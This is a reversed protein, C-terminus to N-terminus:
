RVLERGWALVTWGAPVTEVAPISAFLIQGPYALYEIEKGDAVKYVVKESEGVNLATM